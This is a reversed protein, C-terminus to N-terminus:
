ASGHQATIFHIVQIAEDLAKRLAAPMPKIRNRSDNCPSQLVIQYWLLEQMTMALLILTWAPFLCIRKHEGRLSAPLNQSGLFGHVVSQSGSSWNM